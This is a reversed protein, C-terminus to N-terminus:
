DIKVASYIARVFAFTSVFSITGTVVAFAAVMALTYGFYLLMAVSDDVQLKTFFYYVAYLLVYVACGAGHLFSRWWWRHDESCLQLYAMVVAVEGCSIILILFVIFLFGFLYYFQNEWIASMIFFLEIFVAGFPLVGALLMSPLAAMFWKQEPIERPIHNTTVPYSM